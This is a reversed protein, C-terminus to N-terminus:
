VNSNRWDEFGPFFYRSGIADGGDNILPKSALIGRSKLEKLLKIVTSIPVKLYASMKKSNVGDVVFGAPYNVESVLMMLLKSAGPSLAGIEGSLYENWEILRKNIEEYTM